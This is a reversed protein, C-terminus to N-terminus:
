FSLDRTRDRGNQAVREMVSGVGSTGAEAVDASRAHVHLVLKHLGKSCATLGISWLM